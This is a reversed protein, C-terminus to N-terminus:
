YEQEMKIMGWVLVSFKGCKMTKIVYKNSFRQNKLCRVFKWRSCHREVRCEDLFIVKSWDTSSFTLYAKCWNIRKRVNKKNLLPKEAALCGHMNEMRLYCKVSYLSVDTIIQAENWVERGTWFPNKKSNWSLSRRERESSKMPRGNRKGDVIDGTKLYKQWISRMTTQGLNLEEAVKVQKSGSLM